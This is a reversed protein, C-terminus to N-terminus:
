NLNVPEALYPKKMPNTIPQCKPQKVCKEQPVLKKGRWRKESLDENVLLQNDGLSDSQAKIERQCSFSKM